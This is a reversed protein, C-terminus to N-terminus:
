NLKLKYALTIYITTHYHLKFWQYYKEHYIINSLVPNLKPKKKGCHTNNASNSTSAYGFIDRKLFVSAITNIDTNSSVINQKPNFIILPKGVYRRESSCQM